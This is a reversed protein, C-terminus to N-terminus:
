NLQKQLKSVRQNLSNYRKLQIDSFGRKNDRLTLLYASATDLNDKAYRKSNTDSSQSLARKADLLLNEVTNMRNNQVPANSCGSLLATTLVSTLLIKSVNNM